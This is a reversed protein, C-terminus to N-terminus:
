KRAMREPLRRTDRAWEGFSKVSRNCFILSFKFEFLFTDVKQLRAADFAPVM